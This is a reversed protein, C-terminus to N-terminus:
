YPSINVIGLQQMCELLIDISIINLHFTLYKEDYTYKCYTDYSYKCHTKMTPIMFLIKVKRQSTNYWGKSRKVQIEWSSKLDHFNRFIKKIKKENM